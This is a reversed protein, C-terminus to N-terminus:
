RSGVAQVGRGLNMNKKWELVSNMKWENTYSQGFTDNFM